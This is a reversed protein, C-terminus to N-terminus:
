RSRSPRLAAGAVFTGRLEETPCQVRYHYEGGAELGQLVVFRQSGSGSDQARIFEDFVEDGSFDVVCREGAATRYSLTSVGNSGHRLELGSVLGQAAEIADIDAGPSGLSADRFRFEGEVPFVKRFREAATRGDVCIIDPFGAYYSECDQATFNVQPSASGYHAPDSSDRVGPLILNRAFSSLPDPDPAQTFYGAFVESARRGPHPLVGGLLNPPALGGFQNDDNHTFINDTISVGGSRGGAFKFTWPGKGRNDFVTNHTVTLDEVSGNIMLFYGGFNSSREQGNVGSPLSRQAYFDINEFLNNHVRIRETPLAEMGAARQETPIQIGSGVRRFTNNVIDIDSVENGPVVGVPFLGIAPGTPTFDAWSGDVINGEFRFRVGRKLEFVHRMPHYRGNSTIDGAMYESDIRFTNRSIMVDSPTMEQTQRGPQAFLTIGVCNLFTNNTIAIRQADTFEIAQSHGLNFGMLTADAQESAPNLPRWSSLNEFHSNLIASDKSGLAMGRQYRFPFGGGDIICRDLALRENGTGFAILSRRYQPDQTVFGGSAAVGGGDLFDLQFETPSLVTYIHSGDIRGTGGIQILSGATATGCAELCDAKPAGAAQLWDANARVVAWTGNLDPLSSGEIRVIHGGRVGALKGQGIIIRDGQKSQIELPPPDELGHPTATRCVIPKDGSCQEIPIFAANVVHGTGSVYAEPLISKGLLLKRESLMYPRHVRNLGPAGQLGSVGVNTGNIFEIDRDVTLIAGRQDGSADLVRYVDPVFEDFPPPAFRIGVFRWGDSCANKGKTCNRVDFVADLWSSMSAPPALTAMAPLYSPSIRSGEPPLKDAASTRVVVTGPGEKPPAVFPGTCTAGAPIIVEHNLSADARAAKELTQQFNTCRNAADVAVQFSQGNIAPMPLDPQAPPIPLVPTQAPASATRFHPPEEAAGCAFGEFPKGEACRFTALPREDRLLVPQFYYVSDPALGGITLRITSHGPTAQAVPTRFGLSPDPGYELAIGAQANVNYGLTIQVRSHSIRDFRLARVGEVSEPQQACAAAAAVLSLLAPGIWRM